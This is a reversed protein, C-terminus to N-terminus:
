RKMNFMNDMMQGMNNKNNDIDGKLMDIFEKRGLRDKSIRLRIFKDLLMKLGDIKLKQAIYFVRTLATIENGSLDTKQDLNEEKFLEKLILKTTAGSDLGSDMLASEIDNDVM